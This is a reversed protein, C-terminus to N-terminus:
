NDEPINNIWGEIVASYNGFSNGKDKLHEKVHLPNILYLYCIIKKATDVLQGDTFNECFRVDELTEIREKLHSDGNLILRYMYNRFYEKHNQCLNLIDNDTTLESIGKKYVFTGYAELLRRMSNGITLDSIMSASGNAYKYIEKMLLSYGDRNLNFDDIERNKLEHIEFIHKNDFEVGIEQGSKELDYITSLSHSLLLIKSRKNGKIIKLLQSKLYTIVGVKNEIDFSSVPDDIVIFYEDKYNDESNHNELIHTFFYCLAIINREGTSVKSPEIKVGNSVLYYKGSNADVDLQLRDNSFFVYALAKNIKDKAIDVNKKKNNLMNIDTEKFCIQQKYQNIKECCNNYKRYVESYEKYEEHLEWYAIERNWLSAREKSKNIKEIENNYYIRKNELINIAENLKKIEDNIGRDIIQVPIYISNIKEDVARIYEALLSHIIKSSAEFVEYEEIYINKLNDAVMEVNDLLDIAKIISKQYYQLKIQHQQAIESLVKEIRSLIYKKEESNIDRFCYPCVNLEDNEFTYKVDSFYNTGKQNYIELILRDRDNLIPKEINESLLDSLEQFFNEKFIVTNIKEKIEGHSATGIISMSEKLNMRAENENKSLISHNEFIKILTSETINPRKGTIKFEREVWNDSSKLKDKIKKLIHNYSVLNQANELDLKQQNYKDLDKKIKDLDASITSIQKDINVMKGLLIVATLGDEQIDVNNKIYDENFVHISDQPIQLNNNNEDLLECILDIESNNVAKSLTSKGSGNKGYIISIRSNDKVFCQLNKTSSFCRGTVKLKSICEIM